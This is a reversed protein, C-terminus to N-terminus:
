VASTCFRIFLNVVTVTCASPPGTLPGKPGNGSPPNRSFLPPSSAGAARDPPPSLAADGASGVVDSHILSPWGLTGSKEDSEAGAAGAEQDGPRRCSACFGAAASRRSNHRVKAEGAEACINRREEVASVCKGGGFFTCRHLKKFLWSLLFPHTPHTRTRARVRSQLRVTM